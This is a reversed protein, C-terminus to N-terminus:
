YTENYEIKLFDSFQDTSKKQYLFYKKTDIPVQQYSTGLTNMPETTMLYDRNLDSTDISVSQYRMLYGSIYMDYVSSSIVQHTGVQEGILLADHITSADRQNSKQFGTIVLGIGLIIVSLSGMELTRRLWNTKNLIHQIFFDFYSAALMGFGIAFYPLSPILYPLAQRPSIMLPFSATVGVLLCVWALKQHSDAALPTTSRSIKRIIILTMWGLIMPSLTFALQGIIFFRNDQYYYLRRAGTLSALVQVDLYIQTSAWADPVALFLVLFFVIVTGFVIMTKLLMERVFNRRSLILWFCGITALPFLAVLGKSLIGLCTALGALVLYGKKKEQNEKLCFYVALLCFISVPTDLLNGPQYLYTVVNFQWFLIPLFWYNRFPHSQPFIKKWILFILRGTILYQTGSFIRETWFSDGLIKFFFAQLWFVFGPHEHFSSFITSSFQPFWFSGNGEALNRAIVAYWVGDIFM